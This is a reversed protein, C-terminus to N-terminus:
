GHFCGYADEEIIKLLKELSSVEPVPEYRHWKLDGRMWYLRWEKARKVYTAKAIAHEINQAPRQFAPRIEFLEVSQNEISYAIDLENRIHVPPRIRELYAEMIREIRKLEFKSVAMNVRQNSSGYLSSILRRHVLDGSNALNKNNIM